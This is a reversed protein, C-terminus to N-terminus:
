VTLRAKLKAITASSLGLGRTLYGDVSGYKEKAEAYSADLFSQEVGLLPAYAAAAAAGLSATIGALSASISARSYQNSLLYNQDITDQDAGAIRLLLASTWGTRDKGATCHIVVAGKADAITTLTGAIAKRAEPSTIMSTYARDMMSRAEQATAFSPTTTTGTSGLVDEHIWEAGPIPTDPKAAIEANTRLDIVETIHLSALSALDVPTLTLANSRYVVGRAVHGGGATDYGPGIGGLDRFNDAGTLRPTIPPQASAVTTPTAAPAATTCGTLAVVGAAVAATTIFHRIPRTRFTTNRM